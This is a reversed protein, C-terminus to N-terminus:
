TVDGADTSFLHNLGILTPGVARAITLGIHDRKDAPVQDALGMVCCLLIKATVAAPTLSTDDTAVLATALPRMHEAIEDITM